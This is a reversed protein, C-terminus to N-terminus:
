PNPAHPPRKQWKQYAIAFGLSNGKIDQLPLAIPSYLSGGPAAILLQIPYKKYLITGNISIKLPLFLIYAPTSPPLHLDQEITAPPIRSPSQQDGPFGNQYPNPYPWTAASLFNAITTPRWTPHETRNASVTTTVIDLEEVDHGAFRITGNSTITVTSGPLALGYKAYNDAQFYITKPPNSPDDATGLPINPDINTPNDQPTLMVPKNPALWTGVLNTPAAAQGFAAGPLLFLSVSILNRVLRPMQTIPKGIM